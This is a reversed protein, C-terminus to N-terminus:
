GFRANQNAGAGASGLQLPRFRTWEMEPLIAGLQPITESRGSSMIHMAGCQVGRCSNGQVFERITGRRCASPRTPRAHGGPCGRSACILTGAGHHAVRGSSYLTGRGSRPKAPLIPSFSLHYPFGMCLRYSTDMRAMSQVIIFHRSRRVPRSELVNRVTRASGGNLM